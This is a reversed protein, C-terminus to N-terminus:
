CQQGGLMWASGGRYWQVVDCPKCIGCATPWGLCPRHPYPLPDPVGQAAGGVLTLCVQRCGETWAVVGLGVVGVVIAVVNGLQLVTLLCGAPVPAGETDLV